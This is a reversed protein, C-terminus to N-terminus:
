KNRRNLINIEDVVGRLDDLVDLVNGSKIYHTFSKVFPSLAEMIDSIAAMYGDKFSDNKPM